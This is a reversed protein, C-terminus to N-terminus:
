MDVLRYSDLDFSDKYSELTNGIGEVIKQRLENAPQIFTRAITFPLTLLSKSMDAIIGVAATVFNTVVSVVSLLLKPITILLSWKGLGSSLGKGINTKNFWERLRGTHVHAEEAANERIDKGPIEAM